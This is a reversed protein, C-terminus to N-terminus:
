KKWAGLARRLLIFEGTHYSTHDIIQLAERFITQGDGWAIPTSLDVTPNKIITKFTDLDTIYGKASENWIKKTAKAKPDPWYNDPWSLEKYDPNTIFDVMDHQTVRIHELLGWLSYPVGSVKKNMIKEPIGKVV